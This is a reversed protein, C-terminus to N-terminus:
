LISLRSVTGASTLYLVAGRDSTAGTKEHFWRSLTEMSPSYICTKGAAINAHHFTHFHGCMLVQGAAAPTNSLAQGAWWAEAKQIPSSGRGFSHGHASVFTTDGVPFTMYSQDRPPVVLEVTDAYQPLEALVDMAAVAIGIDHNDSMPQGQVRQTDGHNGGIASVKVQYGLDAFTRVTQVTLRQATIIQETLTLDMLAINRGGQSVVGEIMDGVFAVHVGEIGLPGLMQLEAVANNLSTRYRQLISETGGGAEASKGIHVDGIQITAWHPGTKRRAPVGPQISDLLAKVDARSKPRPALRLKYAWQRGHGPVDWTSVRPHYVCMVKDPDLGADKIIQDIATQDDLDLEASYAATAVEGTQGDYDARPTWPAEVANPMAALSDRLNV